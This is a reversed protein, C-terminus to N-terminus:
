AWVPWPTEQKAAGPPSSHHSRSVRRRRALFVSREHYSSGGGPQLRLAPLLCPALGDAVRALQERQKAQIAHHGGGLGRGLRERQAHRASEHAPHPVAVR